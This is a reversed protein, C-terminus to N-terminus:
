SMHVRSAGERRMTEAVKKADNEKATVSLVVTGAGADVHRKPINGPMQAAAGHSVCFGEHAIAALPKVSTRSSESPTRDSVAGYDYVFGTASGLVDADAYKFTQQRLSRGGSHLTIDRMDIREKILMNVANQAHTDDYFTADIIKKM